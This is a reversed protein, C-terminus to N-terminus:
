YLFLWQVHMNMNQLNYCPICQKNKGKTKTNASRDYAAEFQAHKSKSSENYKNPRIIQNKAPIKYKTTGKNFSNSLNWKM